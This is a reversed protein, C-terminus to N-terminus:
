KLLTQMEKLIEEENEKETILRQQLFTLAEKKVEQKYKSIMTEFMRKGDGQMVKELEFLAGHILEDPYLDYPLNLVKVEESDQLKKWTVYAIIDKELREKASIRPLVIEKEQAVVEEPLVKKMEELLSEERLGTLSAVERIFYMRDISSQLARVYPLIEKVVRSGKERVDTTGELLRKTLYIIVHEKAGVAKAWLAPDERIIDAPDKAGTIGIVYVDLGGYLCMLASKRLANQGAIDQDFSLLVRESFRKILTIHEDTFATGSVAITNHVGAQYSMVLDMQGEVVVVEKKVSMEKKATDYGFLVKSKHYIPTEPSNIYKAQEKTPDILTPLIRGSFGITNGSVGRIPFMIRGRFRDYYGKETKIVLGVKEMEEEKYGQSALHIFLARWENKAYGIHFQKQTEEHVGRESLYVKAESSGLLNKEFHLTAEQMLALMRSDEKNKETNKLSIGARDALLKLAEFFPINEIKEVFSFIDGHAGCGFCHYSKRENSVYFSASRENHFPCRAKYQSGSKELRVYTAVVDMISLREKIEDKPNM